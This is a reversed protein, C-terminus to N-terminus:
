QWHETVPFALRQLVGSFLRTPTDSHPQAVLHPPTETVGWLALKLGASHIKAIIGVKPIRTPGALAKSISSNWPQLVALLLPWSQMWGTDCRTFAKQFSAFTKLSHMTSVCTTKTTGFRFGLQRFQKSIFDNPHSNRRIILRCCPYGRVSLQSKVVHSILTQRSIEEKGGGGGKWLASPDSHLITYQPSRVVTAEFDLREQNVM